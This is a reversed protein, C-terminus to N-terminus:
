TYPPRKGTVEQNKGCSQSLIHSSASLLLLLLSRAQRSLCAASDYYWSHYIEGRALSLM